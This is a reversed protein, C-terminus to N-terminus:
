SPFKTYQASKYFNYIYDLVVKNRVYFIILQFFMAAIHKPKCLAM